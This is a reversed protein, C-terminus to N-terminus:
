KAGCRTRALLRLHQGSPTPRGSGDSFDCATSRSFNASPMGRHTWCPALPSPFPSVCGLLCCLRNAPRSSPASGLIPPHRSLTTHRGRRKCVLARRRLTGKERLGAGHSPPSGAYVARPSACPCTQLLPWPTARLAARPSRLEGAALRTSPRVLGAAGANAASKGDRVCGRCGHRFHGKLLYAERCLHMGARTPSGSHRQGSSRRSKRSTAALAPLPPRQPLARTACSQGAGWGGAEISRYGCRQSCMIDWTGPRWLEV